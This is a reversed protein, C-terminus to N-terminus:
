YTNGRGGVYNAPRPTDGANADKIIIFFQCFPVTKGPIVRAETQKQFATHFLACPNYDGVLRHFDFEQPAAEGKHNAAMKQLNEAQEMDGGGWM